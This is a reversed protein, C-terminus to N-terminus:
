ERQEFHELRCANGDRHNQGLGNGDERRLAPIRQYTAGGKLAAGAPRFGPAVSESPADRPIAIGQRFDQRAESLFIITEAAELQAFFLRKERGDRQWWQLLELTTRTVGPCGAVKWAKVRERILNM